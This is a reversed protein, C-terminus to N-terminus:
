EGIILRYKVDDGKDIGKCMYLCMACVKLEKHAYLRADRECINCTGSRAEQSCDPCCYLQQPNTTSFLQGCSELKCSTEYLTQGYYLVRYHDIRCKDCHYVQNKYLPFFSMGCPPNKCDQRPYAKRATKKKLNTNVNAKTPQKAM